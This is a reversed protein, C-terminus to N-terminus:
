RRARVRPPPAPGAGGGTLRAARSTRALGHETKNWRDPATLLELLGRWAALSVLGYYLPVLPVFPLLSWWRRRRLAELPPLFLALFGAGILTLSLSAALIELPTSAALLRGSVLAEGAAVTFFPFGFASLVTGLTVSTAGGLRVPGLKRLNGIPRRSHTIAVQLFGKM